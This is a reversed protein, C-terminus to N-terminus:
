VTARLREAVVPRVISWLWAQPRGPPLKPLAAVRRFVETVVDDVSADAIGLLVVNRRVRAAHEDFIVKLKRTLGPTAPM